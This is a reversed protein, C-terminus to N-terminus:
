GERGVSAPGAFRVGSLTSSAPHVRGVSPTAGVQGAVESGSIPTGEPEAARNTMPLRVEVTTGQGPLSSINLSGGHLETLRKAIALGLGSGQQEYFRREFQMYAGVRAVHEAKMGRGRDQISLVCMEGERSLRVVVPSRPDSFKFANDALEGVIKGFYEDSIAVQAQGLEFSVDGVRECRAARERVVRRLAPGLELGVDEGLSGMQNAERLELQVYVLINGVVHHLRDASERIALAMSLIEEPSLAAPDAILLEAFGIIGNLPTLLEHPLALSINARLEAMKREADARVVQQKRLRAAVAATLDGVAFPKALYDDAGLEMGQRMGRSDAQGTMLIFPISATLSHRRLAALTRYGDMGEMRVDCLILDPTEACALHVGAVGDSAETVEYGAEELAMRVMARLAADDDVVLIRPMGAVGGLM